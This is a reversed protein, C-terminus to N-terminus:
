LNIADGFTGQKVDSVVKGDLLTIVRPRVINVVKGNHAAMIITTGLKNLERLLNVIDWLSEEDMQDAIDDIVIVPPSHLIAKALEIRRLEAASFENLRRTESGPMGVLSLAKKIRPREVLNIRLVRARSIKCINDFVTETGTLTPYQMVKGVCAEIRRRQRKGSNAINIHNYYVTGRDPPHDGTILHLVASTGSGRKGAFCVFEGQTIILNVSLVAPLKRSSGKYLKEVKELRIIPM